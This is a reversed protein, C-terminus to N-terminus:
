RNMFGTQSGILTPQEFFFHQFRHLHNLEEKLQVFFPKTRKEFVVLIMIVAM